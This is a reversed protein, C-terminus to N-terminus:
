IVLEDNCLRRIVEPYLQYELEKIRSELSTITDDKNIALKAQAIVTGADLAETVIHVSTGHEKDKNELAQKHTHLGKYKPLLSPHINIIKNKFAQIFHPTLIRMFGALIIFDPKYPLIAKILAQDYNERTSYDKHSLYIAAIQHNKARTLSYSDKNSIVAQINASIIGQEIQNIIAQLNSGNGSTLVILKKKTM